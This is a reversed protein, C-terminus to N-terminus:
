PNFSAISSWYLMNIAYQRCLRWFTKRPEYKRGPTLWHLSILKFKIQVKSQVWDNRGFIQISWLKWNHPVLYVECGCDTYLIHTILMSHRIFWTYPLWTFPTRCLLCKQNNNKLFLYMKHWLIFWYILKTRRWFSFFMWNTSLGMWYFRICVGSRKLWLFFLVNFRLPYAICQETHKGEWNEVKVENLLQLLEYNNTVAVTRWM